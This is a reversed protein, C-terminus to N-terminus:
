KKKKVIKKKFFKKEFRDMFEKDDGTPEEKEDFLKDIKDLDFLRTEGIKSNPIVGKDVWGLITEVPVGMYKSLKEIGCIRRGVPNKENEPESDRRKVTSEGKHPWSGLGSEKELREIERMLGVSQMSRSRGTEWRYVTMESCPLKLAFEARTLGLHERLRKIREPNIEREM